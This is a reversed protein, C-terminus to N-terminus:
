LRPEPRETKLVTKFFSNTTHRLVYIAPLNVFYRKRKEFTEACYVVSLQDNFCEPQLIQEFM